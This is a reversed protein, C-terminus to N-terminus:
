EISRTLERGIKAIRAGTNRDGYAAGDGARQGPQALRDEVIHAQAVDLGQVFQDVSREPLAIAGVVRGGSEIHDSPLVTEAVDLRCPVAIEAACEARQGALISGILLIGGALNGPLELGQSPDRHEHNQVIIEVSVVARIELTTDIQEARM